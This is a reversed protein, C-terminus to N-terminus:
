RSSSRFPTQLHFLLATASAAGGCRVGSTLSAEDMQENVQVRAELPRGRPTCTADTSTLTHLFSPAIQQMCTDGKGEQATGVSAPDAHVGKRRGGTCAGPQGSMIFVNACDTLLCDGLAADPHPGPLPCAQGQLEWTASPHAAGLPRTQGSGPGGPQGAPPPLAWIPNACTSPAGCFNSDSSQNGM